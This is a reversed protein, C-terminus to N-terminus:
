TRPKLVQSWKIYNRLANKKCIKQFYINRSILNYKGKHHVTYKSIFAFKHFLINIKHISIEITPSELIVDCNNVAYPPNYFM